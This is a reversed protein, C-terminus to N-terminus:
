FFCKIAQKVADNLVYLGHKNTTSVTRVHDTNNVTTKSSFFYSLNKLSLKFRLLAPKLNSLHFDKNHNKFM